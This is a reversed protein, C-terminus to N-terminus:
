YINKKIFVCAYNNNNSNNIELFTNMKSKKKAGM